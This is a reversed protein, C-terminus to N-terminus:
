NFCGNNRLTNRVEPDLDFLILNREDDARFLASDRQENFMYGHPKLSGPLRKSATILEEQRKITANHFERLDRPPNTERLEELRENFADVMDFVTGYDGAREATCLQAYEEVTLPQEDSPSTESTESDDAPGGANGDGFQGCAVVSAVLIALVCVFSAVSRSRIGNAPKTGRGSTQPISSEPITEIVTLEEKIANLRDAIDLTFQCAYM